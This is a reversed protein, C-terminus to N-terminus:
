GELQWRGLTVYKSQGVLSHILVIESVQWTFPDIHEMMISKEDYLLTIHPNFKPSGRRTHDLASLLNQVLNKLHPEQHDQMLVLPKRVPRRSFNGIVDFSIEFPALTSALRAASETTGKVLDEPLGAFDGVHLLTMHLREPSLPRGKMGEKLRRVQAFEFMAQATSPPPAIAFFLRDTPPPVKPPQEDLFTLQESM